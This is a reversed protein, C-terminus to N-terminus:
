KTVTKKFVAFFLRSGDKPLLRELALKARETKTFDRFWGWYPQQAVFLGDFSVLEFGNRQFVDMLQAKTFLHFVLRKGDIRVNKTLPTQRNKGTLPAKKKDWVSSVSVIAVGRDKLVRNMEAASKEFDCLNLVSFMCLVTDFTSTAFPLNEARAQAFIGNTQKAERLMDISIDVGIDAAHVGTGCGIDLTLGSAHKAILKKEFRRMHAMTANGHRRDYDNATSDYFERPKTM